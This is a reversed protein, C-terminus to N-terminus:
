ARHEPEESGNVGTKAARGGATRRRWIEVLAVTITLIVPGLVLGASGFLAVGGVTAIFVPLTHLRLRQGVLVPYLLNDVLSVVLAGWGALILAKGWSGSLALFVAAPAWVVFAGLIPVVALVAMLAGWLLTAPLGLAWFMVGGLIGQVLAVTLTGFITAHITDSVRTFVAETEPGSLPVLSRLAGLGPGRDRFFYFLAFLTILLQGVVWASGTLVTSAGSTLASSGRELTGRLDAQEALWALGPGLRPYSDLAARWSEASAESQLWSVGSAVQRVLQQTVLLMPGVVAVAVLAVAVGAALAPRHLRRLLWTHLPHTVVALALAWALAPLFPQALRYCAYVALATAALLVLVLARERPLWGDEPQDRPPHPPRDSM